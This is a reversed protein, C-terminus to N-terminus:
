EFVGNAKKSLSDMNKIYKQNLFDMSPSEVASERGKRRQLQRDSLIATEDKSAKYGNKNKLTEALLWDALTNLLPTPLNSGTKSFFDENLQGIIQKREEITPLPASILTEVQEAFEKLVENKYM